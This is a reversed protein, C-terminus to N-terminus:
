SVGLERSKLIKNKRKKLMVIRDYKKQALYYYIVFFLFYMVMSKQRMIIGLNSMVFSMALSALFFVTLSMKVTVPSKKLFKLFDKKLIRIFLLLYILNEVSVILGLMGPADFFLPRFWFTFLKVPLPYDVMDVGSGSKALEGGRDESFDEFGQVLNESEDLGAMGLITDQVMILSGIMGIYILMKKWFAIKEKGTMYGLVTGAAVFLFVHPRIYYILVSALILTFWRSKPEKIAYAFMMLGMFIPAGKGLSATWFHMNPLFLVLILFDLKFVKLKIPINERFFLYAYLFGIYGFWAYLVMMMEYNFGLVNIFPWSMFDIFTTSTGFYEGWAGYQPRSYYLRSDSNNFLAYTYYVIFFFLHYLFLTNMLKKSFFKHKKSFTSYMMQNIVFLALMLVLAGLM